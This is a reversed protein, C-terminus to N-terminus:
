FIFHDFEDLDHEPRKQRAQNQRSNVHVKSTMHDLAPHNEGVQGQRLNDSETDANSQRESIM